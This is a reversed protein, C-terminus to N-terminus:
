LMPVYEMDELNFQKLTTPPPMTTACSSCCEDIFYILSEKIADADNILIHDETSWKCIIFLKEVDNFSENLQIGPDCTSVITQMVCLSSNFDAVEEDTVAWCFYRTVGHMCQITVMELDRYRPLSVQMLATTQFSMLHSTKKSAILFLCNRDHRLINRCDITAYLLSEWNHKEDQLVSIIENPHHPQYVFVHEKNAQNCAGDRESKNGRWLSQEVITKLQGLGYVSLPNQEHYLCVHRRMDPHIENITQLINLDTACKYEM